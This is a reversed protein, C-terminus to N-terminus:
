RTLNFERAIMTEVTEGYLEIEFAERNAKRTAAGKRASAQRQAKTRGIGTTVSFYDNYRAQDLPAIVAAGYTIVAIRYQAADMTNLTETTM